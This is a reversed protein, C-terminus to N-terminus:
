MIDRSVKKELLRALRFASSARNTRTQEDHQMDISMQWLVAFSAEIFDNVVSRVFSIVTKRASTFFSLFCLSCSKRYPKTAEAALQSFDGDISTIDVRNHGHLTSVTVVSICAFLHAKVGIDKV